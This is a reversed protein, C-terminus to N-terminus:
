NKGTQDACVGKQVIIKHALSAPEDVLPGLVDREVSVNPQESSRQTSYINKMKGVSKATYRKHIVQGNVWKFSSLKNDPPTHWQKLLFRPVYHQQQYTTM